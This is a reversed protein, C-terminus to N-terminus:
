QCSARAANIQRNRIAASKALGLWTIPVHRIVTKPSIWGNTVKPGWHGSDAGFRVSAREERALSNRGRRSNIPSNDESVRGRNDTSDPSIRNIRVRWLGMSGTVRSNKPKVGVPTTFPTADVLLSGKGDATILYDSSATRMHPSRPRLIPSLGGGLCETLIRTIIKIKTDEETRIKQLHALAEEAIGSAKKLPQTWRKWQFIGGRWGALVSGCNLLHRFCGHFVDDDPKNNRIGPASELITATRPLM